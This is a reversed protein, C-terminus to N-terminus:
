PLSEWDPITARWAKRFASRADGELDEASSSVRALATRIQDAGSQQDAWRNSNLVGLLLAKWWTEREWHGESADSFMMGVAVRGRTGPPSVATMLDFAPLASASGAEKLLSSREDLELVAAFTDWSTRYITQLQIPRIERHRIKRSIALLLHDKSDASPRANELETTLRDWCPLSASGWVLADFIQDALEEVVRDQISGPVLFSAIRTFGKELLEAALGKSHPSLRHSSTDQLLQEIKSAIMYGSTSGVGLDSMSNSRFLWAALGDLFDQNKETWLNFDVDNAEQLAQLPDRDLLELITAVYAKLAAPRRAKTQACLYRAEQLTLRSPKSGWWYQPDIIWLLADDPLYRSYITKKLAVKALSEDQGLPVQNQPIGEVLDALADMNKALSALGMVQDQEFPPIWPWRPARESCLEQIEESSLGDPQLDTMVQCWTEFTAEASRAHEVEFISSDVDHSERWYPCQLWALAAQRYNSIEPAQRRWGPWWGSTVLAHTTDALDKGMRVSVTDFVSRLLAGNGGTTAKSAMALLKSTSLRDRVEESELLLDLHDALWPWRLEDHSKFLAEPTLSKWAPSLAARIVSEQAQVDAPTWRIDLLQSRFYDRETEMDPALRVQLEALQLLVEPCPRLGNMNDKARRIIAPWFRSEPTKEFLYDFVRYPYRDWSRWTDTHSLLYGALQFLNDVPEADGLFEEVWTPAKQGASTADALAKLVSVNERAVQGLLSPPLGPRDLVSVTVLGQGFLEVLRLQKKKNRPDWWSDLRRGIEEQINEQRDAPWTRVLDDAQQLLSGQYAPFDAENMLLLEALSHDPFALWEEDRILRNWVLQSKQATKILFKELLAGRQEESASLGFALNYVVKIEQQDSPEQWGFGQPGYLSSFRESFYLLGAPANKTRDVVAEAYRSVGDELSDRSHCAGTHDLLVANRDVRMADTAGSEPIVVLNSGRLYLEPTQTYIRVACRAKLHRPLAARAFSLLDPLSGGAAFERVPVAVLVRRGQEMAQFLHALFRSVVPADDDELRRVKYDEESVTSFSHEGPTRDRWPKEFAAALGLLVGPDFGPPWSGIPWARGHAFYAARRDYVGASVLRVVFFLEETPLVSWAELPQDLNRLDAPDSDLTMWPRIADLLAEREGLGCEADLYQEGHSIPAGPGEGIGTKSQGRYISCPRPLLFDSM